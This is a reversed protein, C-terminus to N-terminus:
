KKETIWGVLDILKCRNSCFPRFLSNKNWIVNKKCIPCNVNIYNNM